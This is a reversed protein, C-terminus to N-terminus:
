LLLGEQRMEWARMRCWGKSWEAALRDPQVPGSGPQSRTDALGQEPYWSSSDVVQYRGGRGGGGGRSQDVQSECQKKGSQGVGCEGIQWRPRAKLRLARWLSVCCTQYCPQLWSMLLSRGMGACACLTKRFHANGAAVTNIHLRSRTPVVGLAADVRLLNYVFVLIVWPPGHRATCPM